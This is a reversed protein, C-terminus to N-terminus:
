TKEAEFCAATKKGREFLHLCVQMYVVIEDRERDAFERSSM